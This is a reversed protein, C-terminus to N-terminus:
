TVYRRDFGIARSAGAVLGLVLDVLDVDVELDEFDLDLDSWDVGSFIESKVLEDEPDVSGLGCASSEWARIWPLM